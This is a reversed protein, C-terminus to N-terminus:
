LVKKGAIYVAKIADRKSVFILDSLLEHVEMSRLKMFLFDAQKGVEISGIIDDKRLAKAAGLTSYYFPASLPMSFNNQRYLMMKMIYPMYLSTGAGVDSALGFLLDHEHAKVVPFEGSRLFFNSDPCHAITTGTNHLLDMEYDTLHICHGMITKPTLIGCDNYVDAYPKNYMSKVLEVEKLNESLHTQIYANNKSAYDGTMKMLKESCVPVFRPTFVYELLPTKKNWKEFLEISQEVSQVTDEQLFDPSNCDMMVKGIITRVGMSEAIKFAAETATKFVSTYVVSTTTGCHILENFFRLSTELAYDEDASKKEESFIYKNLWDLLAPEYKGRVFYQSLHVHTDIFGPMCIFGTYDIFELGEDITESIDTIDTEDITIYVNQKLEASDKSLPNLINTKFIQM